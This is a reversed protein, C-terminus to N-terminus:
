IKLCFEVFTKIIAPLKFVIEQLYKYVILRIVSLSFSKFCLDSAKKWPDGLLKDRTIVLLLKTISHNIDHKKVSFIM